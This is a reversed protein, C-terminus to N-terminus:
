ILRCAIKKRLSKYYWNPNSWACRLKLDNPLNIKRVGYM